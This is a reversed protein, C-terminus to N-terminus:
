NGHLNVDRLVSPFVDYLAAKGGVAQLGILIPEMIVSSLFLPCRM